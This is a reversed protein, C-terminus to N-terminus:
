DGEEAFAEWEADSLAIVPPADFIMRVRARVRTSHQPRFDAFVDHEMDTTRALAPETVAVVDELPNQLVGTAWDIDSQGSHPQLSSLLALASEHREGHHAGGTAVAHRLAEELCLPRTVSDSRGTKFEVLLIDDHHVPERHKEAVVPRKALEAPM